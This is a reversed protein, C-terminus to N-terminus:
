QTSGLKAQVRNEQFKWTLMCSARYRSIGLGKMPEIQLYGLQKDTAPLHLWRRTKHAANESESARIWDDAGSLCIIKEGRELHKIPKGRAGGIAHWEGGYWIVMGWADFGNAILVAGDWFEEWKFPSADFIDIERLTFNTLEGDHYGEDLEEEVEFVHGCLPCEMVAIPVEGDCDPCTKTPALGDGQKEPELDADMEITNHMLLSTGFDMVMCDHKAPRDPYKEPDLKRLGRGIMQIMTSKFSALRLLVVCEVTPCDWGETLVMVNVLVQFECAEFSALMDRRTEKPTEGTVMRASVGDARYAELVHEAHEVTSCFVVTQRDGAKEKWEEVVRANLPAKDMISAVEVMDFDSALQRVNALEEQVGLDMVFMRPKVLLGARVLEIVTIQDAVNDFVDKLPTKDGRQPTATFGALKMNPNLDYLKDLVRRYSAATVHHAEDVIAVDTPWLNDVSRTVTPVMAFSVAQDYEKMSADIVGTRDCYPNVAHFTARNQRTLEDRHQLIIAREAGKALERGVLASLMVTKGAGTPAVALTNAKAELAAECRDVFTVQRPRLIM